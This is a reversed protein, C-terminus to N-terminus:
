LDEGTKQIKDHLYRVFEIAEDWECNQIMQQLKDTRGEGVLYQLRSRLENFLELSQEQRTGLMFGLKQLDALVISNKDKIIPRWRRLVSFFTSLDIPKAVHDDMGSKYCAEIEDNNRHATMAIIPINQAGLHGDKRIRWTAEFGDMDPMQLDMLILDYSNQGQDAALLKLAESGNDAVHVSAGAEELIEIAIQQNVMNDEALLIKIGKLSDTNQRDERMMQGFIDKSREGCLDMMTDMMVSGHIPKHLFADAGAEEAMRRVEDRGFASTVLVKPIKKLNMTTRIHQILRSMDLDQGRWDLVVFDYGANKADAALLEGIAEQTQSFGQPQMSFSRLLAIHLNLTAEDQDALLIRKGYLIEARRSQDSENHELNVICTFVTGRGPESTVSIRGNMMSFLKFAIPLGLGHGLGRESWNHFQPNESSLTSNLIHIFDPHMGQGTDAVTIRLSCTSSVMGILNCIIRITGNKTNHIANDVLQGIAQELRLPDGMLYAPVAPDVEVELKIGREETQRHCNVSISSFLDRIGFRIHELEMKGAELKSFDLIDNIIHLLNRSASQMKHVYGLQVQSLESKLALYTMGLIANMPTRIEHSMNALFDSKSQSALEANERAHEIEMERKELTAAMDYLAVAYGKFIGSVTKLESRAAYNGEGLRKSVDLLHKIPRKFVIICAGFMIGFTAICALILWIFSSIASQYAQGMITSEPITIVTTLYPRSFNNLSQSFFVWLYQEGDAGKLFDSGSQSQSLKPPLISGPRLNIQSALSQSLNNLVLTNDQNFLSINYDIPIELARVTSVYYDLSIGLSIFNKIEGLNNRLPSIFLLATSNSANTIITEGSIINNLPIHEMRQQLPPVPLGSNSASALLLGNHDYLSVDDVFSYMKAIQAFLLNCEQLNGELVSQNTGLGELVAGINKVLNDQHTKVVALLEKASTVVFDRKQQYSSIESPILVCILPLVALSVSLAALRYYSSFLLEKILLKFKQFVSTTM